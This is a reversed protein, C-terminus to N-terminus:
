DESVKAWRLAFTSACFMDEHQYRKYLRWRRLGDDRLQELLWRYGRKIEADDCRGWLLRDRRREVELDLLDMRSGTYMVTAAVMSPRVACFRCDRMALEVLFDEVKELLGGRRGSGRNLWFWPSCGGYVSYDLITLVYVEKSWLNALFDDLERIFVYDHLKSIWTENYKAAIVLAVVALHQTGNLSVSQGHKAFFRDFINVASWLTEESYQLDAWVWGLQKMGQRRKESFSEEMNTLEDSPLCKVELELMYLAIDDAYEDEIEDEIEDVLDEDFEKLLQKIDKSCNEKTTKAPLLSIRPHWVDFSEQRLLSICGGIVAVPSVDAWRQPKVAGIVGGPTSDFSLPPTM